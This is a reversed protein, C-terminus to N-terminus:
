PIVPGMSVKVADLSIDSDKKHILINKLWNKNNEDPYDTRYHAGRSEARLLAARCVMESLLLMNCLELYKILERGDRIQVRPLDATLEEIKRVAEQLGSKKRIIGARDWMLHKLDKRLGRADRNGSTLLSELRTKEEAVQTTPFDPRGIEGAKIAAMRGAIGGITFIETLANGGLRNAGHVGACVEGAAFLAPIITEAHEDIPIGGMCFHATPSIIFEKKNLQDVTPLLHRLKNLKEEPVTKLDIIVGGDLDRGELIERMIARTLRDRTMAMPDKLGYKSIIDDGQANRLMAGAEFVFAEYLFLRRGLAGLATPYFQVFEMDKLPIGLEFALVHGDGTMGAANNNHLYVQAFGGTALIMCNASFTLFRGDQNIGTAVSIQGRFTFLRTIFVREAFRVGIKTAYERLPVILDRGAQHEGQVHRPYSHGPTHTLRIKGQRKFFKVGCKELFDIQDGSEQTVVKVLRQDNIFRGGIVSDKTHVYPNDSSDGLGTTVAFTGKSIFTNNGFGVRSKSVITVDAGRERAEIAARLGAGGGGIVLVDCSFIDFNTLTMM